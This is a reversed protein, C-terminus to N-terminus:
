VKTSPFELVECINHKIGLVSHWKQFMLAVRLWVVDFLFLCANINTKHIPIKQLIYTCILCSKGLLTERNNYHYLFCIKKENIVLNNL